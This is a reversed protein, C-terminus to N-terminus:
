RASEDGEVRSDNRGGHVHRGPDESDPAQLVSGKGVLPYSISAGSGSHFAAKMRWPSGILRAVVPPPNDVGVGPIVQLSTTPFAVSPQEKGTPTPLPLTMNYPHPLTVAKDAPLPTSFLKGGIHMSASTLRDGHRELSSRYEAGVREMRVDAM